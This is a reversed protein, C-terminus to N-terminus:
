IKTLANLLTDMYTKNVAGMHSVRFVKDGIEGGNPNVIVKNEEELVKAIDKANKGNTPSLTTMANPLYNGYFNFPLNLERIKARFYEAVEKANQISSCVGGNKEINELRQLLQLVISVAPTYPTQGREGEKLYNKFNFYHINVIHLREIAEPSLIIMSLGPPLGLGKHSSTIVADIHHKQMDLEDTVFMSIADVINFLNNDKCFQGIAELDYLTGISTEHGNVLLANYKEVQEVRNNIDSLNTNEVKFNLHPVDHSTCLNVFRQGFTGGNIVIANDNKTLFNMVVSEMGATGSATLFVVRSGQPANSMKLLLEECRLLIKSFKDNRFYPPQKGGLELIDESMKVPGVTFISYDEYIM